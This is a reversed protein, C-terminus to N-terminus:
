SAGDGPQLSLRGRLSAVAALLDQWRALRPSESRVHELFLLQGDPAVGSRDGAPRCRSRRRHVASTSCSPTSRDTPSRCASRRRRRGLPGPRPQPEAEEGLRSHMAPDPEILVLEDLDDPYHALNLGTGSGIELTCGRARRLLEHRHARSDSGSAPGCSHTMCSRFSAGLPQFGGVTPGTRHREGHVAVMLVGSNPRM